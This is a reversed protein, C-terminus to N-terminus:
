EMSLKHFIINEPYGIKFIHNHRVSFRDSGEILKSISIRWMTLTVSKIVNGKTRGQCIRDTLRQRHLCPLSISQSSLIFKLLSSIPLVQTPLGVIQRRRYKCFAHIFCFIFPCTLQSANILSRHM